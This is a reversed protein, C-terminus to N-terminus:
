GVELRRWREPAGAAEPDLLHQWSDTVERPSVHALERESKVQIGSSTKM